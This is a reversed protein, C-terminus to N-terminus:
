AFPKGRIARGAQCRVNWEKEQKKQQAEQEASQAREQYDPGYGPEIQAAINGDQTM